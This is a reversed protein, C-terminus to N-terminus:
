SSVRITILYAVAGDAADPSPQFWVGGAAGVTPLGVEGLWEGVLGATIAGWRGLWLRVGGTASDYIAPDVRTVTGGSAEVWVGGLVIQTTGAPLALKVRETTGCTEPTTVRFVRWDAGEPTPASLAM